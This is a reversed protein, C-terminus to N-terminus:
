NLQPTLWVDADVRVSTKWLAYDKNKICIDRIGNEVEIAIPTHGTFNGDVYVDYITDKQQSSNAPNIYLKHLTVQEALKTEINMNVIMHNIDNKWHEAIKDFMLDRASTSIQGIQRGTEVDIARLTFSINCIRNIQSFRQGNIVQIQEIEQNYDDTITIVFLIQAGLLRGTKTGNTLSRTFLSHEHAVNSLHNRSLISFRSDKSLVTEVFTTINEMLSKNPHNECIVATLVESFSNLSTLLFAAVSILLIKM